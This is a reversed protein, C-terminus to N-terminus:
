STSPEQESISAKTARRWLVILVPIRIVTSIVSGAVAGSLGFQVVLLV